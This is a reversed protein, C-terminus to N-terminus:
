FSVKTNVSKASKTPSDDRIQQTLTNAFKKVYIPEQSTQDEQDQMEESDLHAPTQATRGSM